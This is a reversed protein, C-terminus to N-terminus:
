QLRERARKLQEKRTQPVQSPQKPCISAFFVKEIWVAAIRIHGVYKRNLLDDTIWQVTWVAILIVEHLNFVAASERGDVNFGHLFEIPVGNMEIM